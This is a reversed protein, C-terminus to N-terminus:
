GPLTNDNEILVDTIVASPFSYRYVRDIEKVLFDGQRQLKVAVVVYFGPPQHASLYGLSIKLSSQALM